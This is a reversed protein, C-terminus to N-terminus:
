STRRAIYTMVAAAAVFNPVIFMIAQAVSDTDQWGYVFAFVLYATFPVYTLWGQWSAPLYSGRVRVFWACKRVKQKPHKKMSSMSACGCSIKTM